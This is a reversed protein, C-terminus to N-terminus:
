GFEARTVELFLSALLPFSLLFSSLFLYFFIWKTVNEPCNQSCRIVTNRQALGRWPLSRALGNACQDQKEKATSTNAKPITGM